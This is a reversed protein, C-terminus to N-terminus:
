RPDKVQVVALLDPLKLRRVVALAKLANLFRRDARSRRRDRAEFAPKHVFGLSAAIAAYDCLYVDLWCIAAREAILAEIVNPTAGALAHRIEDVRNRIAQKGRLSDWQVSDLLRTLALLALDGWRRALEPNAALEKHVLPMVTVDGATARKRARLSLGGVRPPLQTDNWSTLVNGQARDNKDCHRRTQSAM